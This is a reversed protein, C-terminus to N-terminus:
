TSHDDTHNSTHDNTHDQQNWHTAAPGTAAPIDPQHDDGWLSPAADHEWNGNIWILDYGCGCSATPRPPHLDSRHAASYAQLTHLTGAGYLAAMHAPTAHEPAQTLHLTHDTIQLWVFTSM